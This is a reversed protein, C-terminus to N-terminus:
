AGTKAPVHIHLEDRLEGRVRYSERSLHDKARRREEAIKQEYRRQARAEAQEPTKPATIKRLSESAERFVTTIRANLTEFGSPIPEYTPTLLSADYTMADGEHALPQPPPPLRYEPPEASFVAIAMLHHEFMELASGYIGSWYAMEHMSEIHRAMPTRPIKLMFNATYINGAM